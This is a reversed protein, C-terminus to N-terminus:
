WIRSYEGQLQLRWNMTSDNPDIWVEHHGRQRGTAFVYFLYESGSPVLIRKKKWVNSIGSYLSPPHTGPVREPILTQLGPRDWSQGSWSSGWKCMNAKRTRKGFAGAWSCPPRCRRNFNEKQNGTIWPRPFEQQLLICWTWVQEGAHILFFSVTNIPSESQRADGLSFASGSANPTLCKLTVHWNRHQPKSRSSEQRLVKPPIKEGFGQPLM